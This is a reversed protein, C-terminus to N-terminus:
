RSHLRMSCPVRGAWRAASIVWTSRAPNTARAPRTPCAPRAAPTRRGAAPSPAAAPRRAAAALEAREVGAPAMVAARATSPRGARDVRAQGAHDDAPGVRQRARPRRRRPARRAARGCAIPQGGVEGQADGDHAAVDAVVAGVPPGDVPDALPGGVDGPPGAHAEVGAGDVGVSAPARAARRTGRGGRPAAGGPGTGAACRCRPRPRRRRGAPSPATRRRRRGRRCASSRGCGGRRRRRRRRSRRAAPRRRDLVAPQLPVVAGVVEDLADLPAEVRQAEALLPAPRRGALRRRRREDVPHPRGPEGHQRPRRRRRLQPGPHREQTGVSPSSHGSRDSAPSSPVSSSHSAGYRAPAM